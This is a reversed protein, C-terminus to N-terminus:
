DRQSGPSNMLLEHTRVLRLFNQAGMRLLVLIHGGLLQFMDGPCVVVSVDFLLSLNLLQVVRFSFRSLQSKTRTTGLRCCVYHKPVGYKM